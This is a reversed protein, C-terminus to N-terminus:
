EIIWGLNKSIVRSMYNNIPSDNWLNVIFLKHMSQPAVNIKYVIRKFELISASQNNHILKDMLTM